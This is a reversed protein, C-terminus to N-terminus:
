GVRLLAPRELAEAVANLAAGLPTWTTRVAYKGYGVRVPVVQELLAGLVSRQRGVDAGGVVAVWGGVEALVQELPPLIEVPAASATGAIAAEAADLDAQAQDRVLDYGAKDLEGDVLRLAANKLRDRARDRERELQRVWVAAGDDPPIQRRRWAAQMAARVTKDESAAVEALAGAAALLLADVAAATASYLCNTEIAAREAVLIGSCRYVTMHTNKVGHMRSGCKPCRLLGTALYRGSAQHPVRAHDAIRAQVRDWTARDVLAPWRGPVLEGDPGRNCAVYTPSSLIMRLSRHNLRKGGRAAAPLGQVWRLTARVSAGDGVRQYAELAYTATEPDLALVKKPAGQGREAPTADRWRYGWTVRGVKTWGSAAAHQNVARVREGLRRVEEQAVSALVNAVLDSVEGGERVSHVPVGLAKLEERCRVRELLKRGLRDLAAVVVVVPRGQARQERVDALLAQYDPRDDRTGKMVDTYEGGLVWGQRAAYRRCEALQAELSMGERAMEEKSVRLYLLATALGGATV